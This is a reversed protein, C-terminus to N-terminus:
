HHDGPEHRQDADRREPPRTYSWTASTIKWHPGNQMLSLTFIGADEHHQGHAKYDVFLHLAAYAFGPRAVVFPDGDDVLQMDEWGDAKLDDQLAAFYHRAADHGQWHYPYVTDTISSDDAFMRAFDEADSGSAARAFHHLVDILGPPFAAFSVAPLCVLATTVFLARLASM